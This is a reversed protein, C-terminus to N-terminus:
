ARQAAIAGAVATSAALVALATVAAAAVRRTKRHQRVDEGDLDDPAKGHLAAALQVLCARFRENRLDRQDDETVWSLDIWLPRGPHVGHLASPLASSRKVDFRGAVADWVLSGGSLVLYLTEVSKHKLWYRIEDDVWPSAVAQPSLFVILHRSAALADEIARDLRSTAPMSSQDHFVRLARLRYWPRALNHLADRVARVLSADPEWAYSLFADYRLPREDAPVPWRRPTTVGVLESFGTAYLHIRRQLMRLEARCAANDPWESDPTGPHSQEFARLRPHWKALFPRLEQNLLTIALQEVTRGSPASPRSAKLIERVTAFLAHLSSLAERTLGQDDDLPQTSVRTTTEVFLKWAVDRGEEDVVFTLESLQPLSLKVKTLRVSRSRIQSAVAGAAGAAAGGTAYFGRGGINTLEFIVLGALAGVVAAAIMYMIRRLPLASRLPKVAM